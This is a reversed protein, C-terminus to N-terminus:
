GAARLVSMAFDLLKWLESVWFRPGASRAADAVPVAHQLVRPVTLRLPAARPPARRAAEAEAIPVYLDKEDHLWFIPARIREWGPRPSLTELSARVGAPLARIRGLADDYTDAALVRLIETREAPDETLKSAAKALREPVDPSPTWPATRGDRRQSRSAVSAIYTEIDFYAGLVALYDADALEPESTAGALLVGGGISFGFAGVPERANPHVRLAAFAAALQAPGTADLREEKMFPLDPIMVLFGARAFAEAGVRLEPFDIGLPTAGIVLLMAPHREGWGPRWWGVRMPVGAFTEQTEWRRPAPTVFAALSRGMLATSYIHGLAVLGRILPGFLPRWALGALAALAFWIRM